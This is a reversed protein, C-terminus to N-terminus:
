FLAKPATELVKRDESFELQSLEKSHGFMGAFVINPFSQRYENYKQILDNYGQRAYGIKNETSTLEETLQMMNESAKLDPYAEMRLNFGGMAENMVGEQVGLAKMVTSDGPNASAAQRAGELGSRAKTVAILVDSEHEMYKKAVDVLNPILDLRRKLQVDIQAFGNGVQTKYSVLTNYIKVIWFVAIAAVVLLIITNQDM